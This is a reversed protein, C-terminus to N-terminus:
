RAVIAISKMELSGLFTGDEVIQCNGAGIDHRVLHIDSSSRCLAFIRDATPDIAAILYGEADCSECHYVNSTTASGPAWRAVGSRYAIAIDAGTRTITVIQPSMMPMPLEVSEATLASTELTVDYSVIEGYREAAIVSGPRRPDATISALSSDVDDIQLAVGGDDALLVFGEANSSWDGWYPVGAYTQGGLDIPFLEAPNFGSPAEVQTRWMPRGDADIALVTDDIGVRLTGDPMGTISMSDGYLDGLQRALPTERCPTVGPLAFRRIEGPGSSQEGILVALYTAPCDTGLDRVGPPRVGGDVDGADGPQEGVVQWDGLSPLCGSLAL